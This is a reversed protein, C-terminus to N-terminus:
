ASRAEPLELVTTLPYHDSPYIAGDMSRDIAAEVPTFHRSALIWDIAVREAPNGFGHFTEDSEPQPHIARHVDVLDGLHTLVQYSPSTKTANFDGTIIVPRHGTATDMWNRLLHASQERAVEPGYDFHTNLFFMEAKSLRHKLRVWTALRAFVSGWSKSGPITPTESLWFHGQAVAEFSSRRYLVPSMELATDGEGGRPVGVFQFEPLANKVYEAQADDRCEQLGVVEPQFAHIRDIVLAKRHEWHQPGDNATGYRINFSMVRLRM